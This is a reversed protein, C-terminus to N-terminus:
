WIVSVFALSQAGEDGIPNGQPTPASSTSQVISFPTPSVYILLGNVIM